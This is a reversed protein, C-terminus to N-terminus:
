DLEFEDCFELFPFSLFLRPIRIVTTVTMFRWNFVNESSRRQM